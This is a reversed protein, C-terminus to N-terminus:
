STTAGSPLPGVVVLGDGQKLTAKEEEGFGLLRALEDIKDSTVQGVVNFSGSIIKVRANM